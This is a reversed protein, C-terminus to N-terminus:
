KADRMGKRTLSPSPNQDHFDEIADLVEESLVIDEASLVEELQADATAGIINSGLHARQNVWAIALQTPTMNHDKALQAYFRVWDTDKNLSHQEMVTEGWAGGFRGTPNQAGDLYKGSLIGGALPSYALLDVRERMAFEGMHVDWSRQMLSYPNQSSVIRPLGDNVAFNLYQMVGWPTENSVGIYRIKGKEIEKALAELMGKIDEGVFSTHKDPQFDRQAFYNVQRQPWHLQYLDITEIGLRKLSGDVAETVDEPKLGRGDRLFGPGAMKTAILYQDRKGSDKVWRGIIAETNGCLEPKVPVPYVEATDMFNVGHELAMDLQRAADEYTNQVGWTMTGLCIRSVKLDTGGLNKYIM